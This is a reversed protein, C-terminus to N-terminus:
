GVGGLIFAGYLVPDPDDPPEKGFPAVQSLDGGLTDFGHFSM